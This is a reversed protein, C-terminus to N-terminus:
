FLRTSECGDMLDNANDSGLRDMVAKFVAISHGDEEIVGGLTTLSFAEGIDVSRVTAASVILKWVSILVSSTPLWARSSEEFACLGKWAKDFEGSSLPANELM